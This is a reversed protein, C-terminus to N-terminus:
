KESKIIRYARQGVEMQSRADGVKSRMVKVENRVTKVKSQMLKMKSRMRKLNGITTEMESPLAVNKCNVGFCMGEKSNKKKGKQSVTM